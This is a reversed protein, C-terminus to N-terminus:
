RRLEVQHILTHPHPEDRYREESQSLALCAHCQTPLTAHYRGENAPDTTKLLSHGCRSCRSRRWAEVAVM